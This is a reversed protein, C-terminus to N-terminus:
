QNSIANKVSLMGSARKRFLFICCLILLEGVCFLTWNFHEPVYNSIENFMERNSSLTWAAHDSGNQGIYIIYDWMFSIIVTLSGFILLLWEFFGIRLPSIRESFYIVTLSFVIMSVAVICPALVPGVWPVPILFLIDWTFLSEPWGLLVKLFVYYFLDWIAFSYLFFAFRAAASKGALFGIGTLMILTAAERWFEAVAIDISVPILPFQFGAPYYIKRLYVVVATEMYGMAISFVTVWVITKLVARM